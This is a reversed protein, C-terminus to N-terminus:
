VVSVSASSSRRAMAGAMRASSCRVSANSLRNRASFTLRFAM